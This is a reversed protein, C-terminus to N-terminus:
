LNALNSSWLLSKLYQHDQSIRCTNYSAFIPPLQLYVASCFKLCFLNRYFIYLIVFFVHFPFKIWNGKKTFLKTLFVLLFLGNLSWIKTCWSIRAMFSWICAKKRLPFKELGYNLKLPQKWWLIKSISGQKIPFVKFNKYACYQANWNM